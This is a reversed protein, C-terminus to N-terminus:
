MGGGQLYILLKKTDQDSNLSKRYYVATTGDNCKALPFNELSVLELVEPGGTPPVSPSATLGSLLSLLCFLPFMLMESTLCASLVRYKETCKEKQSLYLEGM